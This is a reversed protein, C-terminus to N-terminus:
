ICAELWPLCFELLVSQRRWRLKPVAARQNSLRSKPPWALAAFEVVTSRARWSNADNARRRGRSADARAAIAFGAAGVFVYDAALSLSRVSARAAKSYYQARCRGSRASAALERLEFSCACRSAHVLQDRRLEDV